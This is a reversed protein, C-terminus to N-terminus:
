CLDACLMYAQTPQTPKSQQKSGTTNTSDAPWGYRYFSFGQKQEPKDEDAFPNFLKNGPM